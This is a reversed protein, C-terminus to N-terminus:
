APAALLYSFYFALPLLLVLVLPRRGPSSLLAAIWVANVAIWVLHVGSILRLSPSDGAARTVAAWRDRLPELRPDQRLTYENKEVGTYILGHPGDLGLLRVFAEVKVRALLDPFEWAARVYENQLSGANWLASPDFVQPETWFTLAINGPIYRERLNPVRVFSRTYPLAECAEEDLACVGVLDFAMMHLELHSRQIDFVRYLVAESAALAVLPALTLLGLAVSRSVRRTATWLVLGALPLTVVANHRVLGFAASLILLLVIRLRTRGGAPPESALQLSVACMWVLIVACWSDKWFTVLYFPLPSVPLLLVLVVLAAIGDAWRLSAQPGFFVRLWTIALARVGFLGALCQALVLAGINRGAKLFLHLTVAMLPPHWDYFRGEWAQRFQTVSDYTLIGPFFARWLVLGLALLLLKTIRPM